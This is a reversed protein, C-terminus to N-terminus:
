EFVSRFWAQPCTEDIYKLAETNLGVILVACLQPPYGAHATDWRDRMAEAEESTRFRMLVEEAQSAFMGNTVLYKLCWERVTQPDSEYIGTTAHEPKYVM